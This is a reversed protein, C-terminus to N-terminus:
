RDHRQVQTGVPQGGTIVARDGSLEVTVPQRDFGIYSLSEPARGYSHLQWPLGLLDDTSHFREPLDLRPIVSGPRALVPMRDLACDITVFGPGSFVQGTVIDTWGGAPVYFQHRVTGTTDAFVPAVLLDPGLLFQGDLHRTAPDAPFELAMPRLMPLGRDAAEHAVQWLYPLLSYRLRIWNRAVALVQEGYEWPERPRLGHARMLPSLAGFQTWRAYLGPTLESGFFGGIDHSWLGPASLAYSLGGRLTSQMGVVTSEADGGWQGPYRQSGAWGSRGWVLSRGGTVERVVDSVAGNYRLTFLNHAHRAPTGDAPVVSDPVAEGFDTKFVAVGDALFDRHLDQWWALAAPNFFDVIGRPRGDPTPTNQINVPEGTADVLLYGADRAQPYRPSAPDLYPLEWVSLRVGRAALERIFEARDGFREENWLFDTNLRDVILWDPDLHLVDCPIENERMGDAVALMEAATHYRCRGMWYGFAWPDPVYARGTLATYSALRAKPDPGVVLYLDLTDDPVTLSLVSPRTHGVDARVQTGTNVFGTIGRSSQWVPVPKYALGTGTGLADQISLVLDQGNKVVPGFQEGFGSVLEDPGIELNLTIREAPEIAVAPAMPFGAVQRLFESTRLVLRSEADAVRIRFPYLGVQISLAATTLVLEHEDRTVTFPVPAPAPDTVIGLGTGDDAFIGADPRGVRLRVTDAAVAHIELGFEAPTTDPLEIDPLNPMTTEVGQDLLPEGTIWGPMPDIRVGPLAVLDLRVGGDALEHVATVKRLLLTAFSSM